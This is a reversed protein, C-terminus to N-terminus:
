GLMCALDAGQSPYTAVFRHMHLLPASRHHDRRALGGAPLNTRHERSGCRNGIAVLDYQEAM